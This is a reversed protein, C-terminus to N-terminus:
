LEVAADTWFKTVSGTYWLLENRDEPNFFQKRCNLIARQHRAGTSLELPWRQRIWVGM